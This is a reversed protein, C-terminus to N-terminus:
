MGTGAVGVGVVDVYQQLSDVPADKGKENWYSEVVTYNQPIDHISCFQQYYPWLRGCLKGENVLIRDSFLLNLNIFKTRCQEWTVSFGKTSMKTGLAKWTRFHIEERQVDAKMLVCQNVFFDTAELPWDTGKLTLLARM